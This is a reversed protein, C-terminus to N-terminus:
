NPSTYDCCDKYGVIIIFESYKAFITLLGVLSSILTYTGIKIQNCFYIGNNTM